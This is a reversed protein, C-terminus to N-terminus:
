TARASAKSTTFSQCSRRLSLASACTRSHPGDVCTSSSPFALIKARQALRCPQATMSNAGELLSGYSISTGVNHLSLEPGSSPIGLHNPLHASTASSRSGRRRHRDSTVPSIDNPDHVLHGDNSQFSAVSGNQRNHQNPSVRGLSPPVPRQLSSNRRPVGSSTPLQPISDPRPFSDLTYRPSTHDLHPLPNPDPVCPNCLRVEQGGGLAPDIGGDRVNETRRSSLSPNNDDDSTLDVVEIGDMRPQPNSTSDEPPHVIFQRPITIRHPSCNACVVRGCKRCHHKRYWFNFSTNCIPCKTVENDPQWKPLVIEQGRRNYQLGASPRRPLPRNLIREMIYDSGHGQSSHIPELNPHAFGPRTMGHSFPLHSSSRRRTSDSVYASLRRNRDTAMMAARRVALQAQEEHDGHAGSYRLFDIWTEGNGLLQEGSRDVGRALVGGDSNGRRLSDRTRATSIGEVAISTTNAQGRLGVNLQETNGPASGGAHSDMAMSYTLRSRKHPRGSLTSNCSAPSVGQLREDLNDRDVRCCLPLLVLLLIEKSAIRVM